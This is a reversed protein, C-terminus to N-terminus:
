REFDEDKQKRKIMEEYERDKVKKMYEEYVKSGEDNFLPLTIMDNDVELTIENKNDIELGKESCSFSAISLKDM